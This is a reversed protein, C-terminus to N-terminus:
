GPLGHSHMEELEVACKMFLLISVSSVIRCEDDKFFKRHIELETVPELESIAPKRVTTITKSDIGIKHNVKTWSRVNKVSFSPMERFDESRLTNSM